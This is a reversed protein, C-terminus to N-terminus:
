LRDANIEKQDNEHHRYKQHTPMAALQSFNDGAVNKNRSQRGSRLRKEKRGLVVLVGM